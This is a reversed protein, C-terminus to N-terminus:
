NYVGLFPLRAEMPAEQRSCLFAAWQLRLSLNHSSGLCLEGSTLLLKQLKDPHQEAATGLFLFARTHCPCLFCFAWYGSALIGPSCLLVSCSWKWFQRGSPKMIGEFPSIVQKCSTEATGDAMSSDQPARQAADGLFFDMYACAGLLQQWCAQHAAWLLLM